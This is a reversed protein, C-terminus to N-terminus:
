EALWILRPGATYLLGTEISHAPFIKAAAGRYAAMQNRHKERVNAANEPVARDTKYDVLLVRDEEVVLVDVTGAIV